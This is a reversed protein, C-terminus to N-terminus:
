GGRDQMSVIYQFRSTGASYGGIIRSGDQPTLEDAGDGAYEGWVAPDYEDGADDGPADDDHVDPDVGGRFMRYPGHGEGRLSRDDLRRPEDDPATSASGRVMRAGSVSAATSLAFVLTTRLM